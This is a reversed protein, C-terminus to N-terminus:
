DTVDAGPKIIYEYAISAWGTADTGTRTILQDGAALATDRLDINTTVGVATTGLTATSIGTTTTGSVKNFIFLHGASTGSAVVTIQASKAITDTFASFRVSNVNAGSTTPGAYNM